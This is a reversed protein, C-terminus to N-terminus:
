FTQFTDRDTRVINMVISQCSKEATQLEWFPSMKLCIVAAQKDWQKSREYSCQTICMACQTPHTICWAAALLFVDFYFLGRRLCLGLSSVESARTSIFPGAARSPVSDLVWWPAPHPLASLDAFASLTTSPPPRSSNPQLSLHLWVSSHRANEPIHHGLRPAPWSCSTSRTRFFGTLSPQKKPSLPNSILTQDTPLRSLWDPSDTGNPLPFDSFTKSSDTTITISTWRCYPQSIFHIRLHIHNLSPPPM